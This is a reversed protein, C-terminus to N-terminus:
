IKTLIPSNINNDDDNVKPQFHEGYFNVNKFSIEIVYISTLTQTRESILFSYQGIYFQKKKWQNRKMSQFLNGGIFLVSIM